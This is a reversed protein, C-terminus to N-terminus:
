GPGGAPSSASAPPDAVIDDERDRRRGRVKGLSDSPDLRGRRVPYGAAGTCGGIFNHRRASRIQRNM